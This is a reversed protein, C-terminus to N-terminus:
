AVEKLYNEIVQNYCNFYKKNKIKSIASIHINYDNAINIHPEKNHARNYINIIDEDTFKRKAKSMKEKTEKTHTKGKRNESIKRKHEESLVRGRNAEWAKELYERPRPKGIKGARLKEKTKESVHRKQGAISLKEKTEESVINNEWYIKKGERMHKKVEESCKIGKKHSPKGKKAKSMKEKTEKSFKYGIGVFGGLKLNYGCNYSNYADIWYQEKDGLDLHNYVEELIKFEFNEKGYKNWSNQLYSNDHKNNKLSNLHAKFRKEINISQGIYSKNNVLNNIIYIGQM